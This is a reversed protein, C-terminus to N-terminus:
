RIWSISSVSGTASRSGKRSTPHPFAPSCYALSSVPVPASAIPTPRFCSPTRRRSREVLPEPTGFSDPPLSSYNGRLENVLRPSHTWNLGLTIANLRSVTTTIQNAFVRSTRETPSLNLRGFLTVRSSFSHDMRLSVINSRAPDSYASQFLGEDPNTFPSPIRCLFHACLTRWREGLALGRPSRRYRSGRSYRSASNCARMRCSSSRGTRGKM